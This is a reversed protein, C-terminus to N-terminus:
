FLLCVFLEHVLRNIWAANEKGDDDHVGGDAGAAGVLGAKWAGVHASPAVDPWERSGCM